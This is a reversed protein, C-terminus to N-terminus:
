RRCYTSEIQPGGLVGWRCSVGSPNAKCRVMGNGGISIAGERKGNQCLVDIDCPGDCRVIRLSMIHALSSGSAVLRFVKPEDELLVISSEPMNSQSCRRAIEAPPHPSRALPVENVDSIGLAFASAGVIRLWINM